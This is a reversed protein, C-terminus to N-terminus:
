TTAPKTRQRQPHTASGNGSTAAEPESESESEPESNHDSTVHHQGLYANLLDNCTRAKPYTDSVADM